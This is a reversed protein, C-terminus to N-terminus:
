TCAEEEHQNIYYNQANRNLYRMLNMHATGAAMVAAFGKKLITHNPSYLM